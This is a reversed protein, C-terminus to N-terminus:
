TSRVRALDLGVAFDHRVGRLTSQAMTHGATDCRSTGASCAYGANRASTSTSLYPRGVGDRRAFEAKALEPM